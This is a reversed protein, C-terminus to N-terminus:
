ISTKHTTKYETVMEPSGYNHHRAAKNRQSNRQNLKETQHTNFVTQNKYFKLAYEKNEKQKVGNESKHYSPIHHVTGRRNFINKTM